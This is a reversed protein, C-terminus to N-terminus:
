NNMLFKPTSSQYILRVADRRTATAEPNINIGINQYAQVIDKYWPNNNLNISGPAFIGRAMGTIKALEAQTIREYPRITNDNYGNIINNQILEGLPLLWWYNNPNSTINPTIDTFRSAISPNNNPSKFQLLRSSLAFYEARLLEANLNAYNQGNINQGM